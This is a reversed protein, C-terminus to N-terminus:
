LQVGYIRNRRAVYALLRKHEKELEDTIGKISSMDPREHIASKLLGGKSHEQSHTKLVKRSDTPTKTSSHTGEYM